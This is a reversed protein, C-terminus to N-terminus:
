SHASARNSARHQHNWPHRRFKSSQFVLVTGANARWVRRLNGISTGAFGRREAGGYTGTLGLCALPADSVSTLVPAYTLQCLDNLPSGYAYAFGAHKRRRRRSATLSFFKQVLAEGKAPQKGASGPETEEPLTM